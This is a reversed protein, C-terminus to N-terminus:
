RSSPVWRCKEPIDDWDFGAYSVPQAAGNKVPPLDFQFVVQLFWGSAVHNVPVSFLVNEGPQLTLISTVDVATAYGHPM